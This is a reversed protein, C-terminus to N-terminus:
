LSLNYHFNVTEQNLCVIKIFIAITDYRIPTVTVDIKQVIQDEVLWQLAEEAYDKARHLTEVTMKERQLLWLKSGIKDNTIKSFNDGWWGRQQNDNFPLESKEIHRDTFLSIIVATELSQDLSIDRDSIVLDFIDNKLSALLDTM